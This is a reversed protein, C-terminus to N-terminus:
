GNTVKFSYQNDFVITSGNITSKILITYYREPELGNMYVNFYSSTSDASIQTYLDDFIVTKGMFTLIELQKKNLSNSSVIVFKNGNNPLVSPSM